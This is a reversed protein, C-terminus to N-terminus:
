ALSERKEGVDASARAHKVAALVINAKASRRNNAILPCQRAQRFHGSEPTFRVLVRLLRVNSAQPM